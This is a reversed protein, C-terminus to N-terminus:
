PRAGLRRHEECCYDRGGDGVAEVRPFHVGCHACETMTESLREAPPPKSRRKSARVLAYIAAIVVLFLIFKAM